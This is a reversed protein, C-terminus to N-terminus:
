VAWACLLCNQNGAKSKSDYKIVEKQIEKVKERIDSITM